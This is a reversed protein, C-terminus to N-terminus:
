RRLEPVGCTVPPPPERTPPTSPAPASTSLVAEARTAMMTSLM